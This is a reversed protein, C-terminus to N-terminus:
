GNCEVRFKNLSMNFAFQLEWNSLFLCKISKVAVMYYRGHEQDIM